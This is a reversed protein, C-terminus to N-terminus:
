DLLCAFLSWHATSFLASALHYLVKKYLPCLLGQSCPDLAFSPLTYRHRNLLFSVTLTCGHPNWTAPVDKIQWPWYVQAKVPFGVALIDPQYIVLQIKRGTGQVLEHSLSLCVCLLNSSLRLHYEEPM